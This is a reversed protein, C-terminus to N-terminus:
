NIGDQAQAQSNLFTGWSKKKWQKVKLGVNPDKLSNLPTGFDGMFDKEKRLPSHNRKSM